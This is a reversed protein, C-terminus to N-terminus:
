KTLSALEAESLINEFLATIVKHQSEKSFEAWPGHLPSGKEKWSNLAKRLMDQEMTVLLIDDMETGRNKSKEIQDKKSDQKSTNITFQIGFHKEDFLEDRTEVEVGRKKSRVDIIFDIKEQVDEYANGARVSIHLDPRNISIMEAVGIMLKEAKIGLQESTIGSRAEVESYAISKRADERKTKKALNKALTKNLEETLVDKTSLEIYKEFVSRGAGSTQTSDPISIDNTFHRSAVIEGPSINKGQVLFSKKYKDYSVTNSSKKHLVKERLLPEFEHEAFHTVKRVTEEGVHSIQDNLFESVTDDYKSTVEITEPTHLFSNMQESM